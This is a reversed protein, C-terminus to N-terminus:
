WSWAGALFAPHALAKERGEELEPEHAAGEHAAQHQRHRRGRDADEQHEPAHAQHALGHAVRDQGAGGPLPTPDVEGAVQEGQDGLRVLVHDGRQEARDEGLGVGLM